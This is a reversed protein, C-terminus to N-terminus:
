LTQLNMWQTLLLLEDVLQSQRQAKKFPVTDLAFAAVRALTCVPQTLRRISLSRHRFLQRM